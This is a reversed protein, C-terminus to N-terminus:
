RNLLIKMTFRISLIRDNVITLASVDGIDLISDTPTWSVGHDTSKFIGDCSTAAFVTGDSTQAIDMIYGGSLGNILKWQAHITQFVSLLIVMGCISLQHFRANVM